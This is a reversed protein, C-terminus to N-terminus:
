KWPRPTYRAELESRAYQKVEGNNCMWTWVMDYGMDLTHQNYHSQYEPFEMFTKGCGRQPHSCRYRPEVRRGFVDEKDRHINIVVCGDVIEGCSCGEYGCKYNNFYDEISLMKVERGAMDSGM